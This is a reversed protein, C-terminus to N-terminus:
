TMVACISIIINKTKFRTGLAIHVQLYYSFRISFLKNKTYRELCWQSLELLLGIVFGKSDNRRSMWRGTCVIPVRASWARCSTRVDERGLWVGARAPIAPLGSARAWCGACLHQCGLCELLWQLVLYRLVSANWGIPWSLFDGVTATLDCRAVILPSGQKYM